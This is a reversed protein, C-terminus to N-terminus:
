PITNLGNLLDVVHKETPESLCHNQIGRELLYASTTTGYSVVKQSNTINNHLLYAEVNSPSTFVLFNPSYEVRLKELQTEYIVLDVCQDKNLESQMTRNSRQSQPFLVTKNGLWLKFEKAVLKPHSATKGIFEPTFNHHKLVQATAEGITALLENTPKYQELYFRVSRPSTFFIVDVKPPKENSILAKFSLLSRDILQWGHHACFQQLPGNKM